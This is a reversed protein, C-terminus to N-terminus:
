GCHTFRGEEVQDLCDGILMDLLEDGLANEMEDLQHNLNVM